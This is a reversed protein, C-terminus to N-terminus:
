KDEERESDTEERIKKWGKKLLGKWRGAGKGKKMERRIEEEESKGYGEHAM